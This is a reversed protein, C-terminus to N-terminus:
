DMRCKAHRTYIIRSIDRHLGGSNESNPRNKGTEAPSNQGKRKQFDPLKRLITLSLVALLLLILLWRGKKM